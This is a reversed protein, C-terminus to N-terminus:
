QEGKGFIEPYNSTVSGWSQVSKPFRIVTFGAEELTRTLREDLQSQGPREHHPGDIYILAQSSSYAFDPQTGFEEILVQARDPLNLKRDKVFNLWEKELSSGSMRWLEDAQADASRGETGRKGEAKTLRCLLEKVGQHQRDILEHDTQNYYSLLCKYCGAECEKDKDELSGSEWSGDTSGWHCVELAKAAVKGLVKLDTALRTLVGAGGEASEYFLIANRKDKSPLPEAMLESEELQFTGEIGRKLAYQLTTIGAEDLEEKPFVVLVNRRDEVYPVIRQVTKGDAEVEDNVDEPAQEDKSWMGTTVDINFGYISKEKRRRWGLNIRWVTATPGYHLEVLSKEEEGFIARTVQLTGNEQAYQLTTQMDYGQRQREEEDSTIRMARKTSVHEIRYLSQLLISGELRVNCAMCLEADKQDGFHGYGCSHCIRATGVPLRAGTTVSEEDRLSLIAKRVRYQSGEHYIISQPGFETLGLFRPRSLFSDRGVNQKRAPIFALLPLRPFNYGPLFGQSALYRYTYFDSNMSPRARLLIEQQIRAEDYRQKAEKREKETAAANMQVSHSKEMQRTTAWYLSRWRDFCSDFNRFASNITRNLWENSYWPAMELTLEDKLM